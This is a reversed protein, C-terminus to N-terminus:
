GSLAGEGSAVVEWTSSSEAGRSRPSKALQPVKARLDPNQELVVLAVQLVYYYSGPVGARAM